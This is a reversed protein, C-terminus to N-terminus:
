QPYRKWAPNPNCVTAVIIAAPESNDAAARNASLTRAASQHMLLGM